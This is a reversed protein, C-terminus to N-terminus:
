NEQAPKSTLNQILVRRQLRILLFVLLFTLVELLLFLLEFPVDSRAAFFLLYIIGGLVGIGVLIALVRSTTKIRDFSLGIEDRRYDRTEVPLHFVGLALYLLPFFAFVYPLAVYFKYMGQNDIFGAGVHFVIMLALLIISLTRFEVIDGDTLAYDAKVRQGDFKGEGWVKAFKLKQGFDKHISNAADEVTGGVKLVM